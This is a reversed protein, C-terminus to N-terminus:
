GEARQHHREPKGDTEDHQETDGAGPKERIQDISRIV